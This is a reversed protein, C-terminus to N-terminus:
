TWFLPISGRIQVFSSMCPKDDFSDSASYLIQETEVFNAVRGEENLGRKLYRPGAFHRSRRAILIFSLAKTPSQFNHMTLYGYIIPLFWKDKKSLLSHFEDTLYYNWIFKDDQKYKSPPTFEQKSM